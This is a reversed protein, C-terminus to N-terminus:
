RAPCAGKPPDAPRGALFAGTGPRVLSAAKAFDSRARALDCSAESALGSLYWSAPSEPTRQVLAEASTRLTDLGGARRAQDVLRDAEAATDLEYQRRYSADFETALDLARRLAELAAPIDGHARKARALNVLTRNLTWDRRPAELRAIREYAAEADATKGLREYAEGLALFTGQWVGNGRQVSEINRAIDQDSATRLLPALLDVLAQSKGQRQYIMAIRYRGETWPAAPDSAASRAYAQVADEPFNAREYVEALRYWVIPDDGAVGRVTQLAARAGPLDRAKVRRDAEHIVLLPALRDPRSTRGLMRETAPWDGREVAQRLVLLDDGGDPGAAAGAHLLHLYARNRRAAGITWPVLALIVVAVIGARWKMTM